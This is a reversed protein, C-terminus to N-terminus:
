DASSAEICYLHKEGRIFIKGDAIAPSAWIPEDISNVALVEHVPGGRVVFVDGDESALLIHGQFGIPSAKFMSPVPVRGGEYVIKGSLADIGTLIGKDSVLYLYDGYLLNSPVYATGKEYEWVVNATGTLDGSGGLKIAKTIKRPYGATVFVMGHGTVPTHIANSEVGKVRWLEEGNGPDYSIIAENGNTVLENRGGSEILLPTSWSAQVERSVRWVEDGTMKDLATIFSREGTNEDVQLIVLSRYLVPSTGVGMGFTAVGGLDKKWVLNGAFDYCYLGESGLYVYVHRGDTAPTPSAYSSMRHRDDYVTGDYAVREWRVRGTEADLCIVKFSHSHTAGVSDPHVFVEGNEMHVVPKAGPVVPGEVATTLFLNDGWVVPSSHGRGEIPATWRVNASKSWEIPLGRDPSIGQGGPGRWQPWNTDEASVLAHSLLTSLVLSFALQVNGRLTM